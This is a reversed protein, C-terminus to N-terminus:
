QRRGNTSAQGDRMALMTADTETSVSLAQKFSQLHLQGRSANATVESDRMFARYMIWDLCPTIYRDDVQVNVGSEVTAKTVTAPLISLVLDVNVGAQVGPYLWFATINTPEHVYLETEVGGTSSAWSPILSELDARSVYRITKGTLTNREVDILKITGAPATQRTGAACAFLQTKIFIDPRASAIASIASNYYSLLDDLGWSIRQTDTLEISARNLMESVLM